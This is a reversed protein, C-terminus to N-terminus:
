CLVFEQVARSSRCHSRPTPAQQGTSTSNEHRIVAKAANWSAELAEASLLAAKATGHTRCTTHVAM